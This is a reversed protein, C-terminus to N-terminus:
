DCVHSHLQCTVVLDIVAMLPFMVLGKSFENLGMSMGSYINAGSVGQKCFQIFPLSPRRQSSDSSINGLRLKYHSATDSRANIFVANRRQHQVAACRVTSTNM